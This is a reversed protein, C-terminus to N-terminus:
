LMVLGQCERILLCVASGRHAGPVCCPLARSNAHVLCVASNLLCVASCTAASWKITWLYVLALRRLCVAYPKGFVIPKLCVTVIGIPVLCLAAFIRANAYNNVCNVLREPGNLRGISDM